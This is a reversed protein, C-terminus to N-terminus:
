LKTVEPQEKVKERLKLKRPELIPWYSRSQLFSALNFSLFTVPDARCLLCCM